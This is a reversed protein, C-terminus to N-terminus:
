PEKRLRFFKSGGDVPVTLFQLGNSIVLTNTVAAWNAAPLTRTFELLFNTAAAPWSILAQDQVRTINLLPPIERFVQISVSASNTLGGSDTATVTIVHNGESLISADLLVLAGNGLVGDRSSTWQVRNAALEGDELDQVNAELVLQQHGILREEVGPRDITVNPAHNLVSFVADSEDVSSRFGDSALVRIRGQTSGRLAERSVELTQETWDVALTIWTMGADPTYQVLYTLPDGDTDAASWRIVTPGAGLTEGGNPFLVQVTPAHATSNQAGIVTGNHLVVVQQIAPDFLTPILFSGAVPFSGFDPPSVELKFSRESVIGGISNLFRLTYDGAEPAPPAAVSNMTAFPFFTVQGTAFDVEGRVLLYNSPGSAVFVSPAAAGGGFRRSIADRFNNYSYKSIWKPSNVVLDAAQSCYSMLDFTNSPNQLFMSHHDFGYIISDEGQDLPGLMPSLGLTPHVYMPFDPARIDEPRNAEVSVETCRGTKFYREEPVGMNIVTRHGIPFASHVAHEFGLLHGLEHAHLNRKFDFAIDSYSGSAVDGPIGLAEGNLPRGVVVGYYLQRWASPNGGGTLGSAGDWLRMWKLLLNLRDEDPAGPLSWVLEGPANTLQAIPYIAKLREELETIQAETPQHDARDINSHWRVRVFKVPLVPMPRFTVQLPCKTNGETGGGQRCFITGNTWELSLTVQGTLWNDPLRFNVSQAWDARFEAANTWFILPPPDLPAQPSNTFELNNRFARLRIHAVSVPGLNTIYVGAAPPVIRTRPLQLHARLYTPKGQILEISQQWDQIAQVVELARVEVATDLIAALANSSSSTCAGCFNTGGFLVLGLLEVPEAEMDSLIPVTFTKMTEGPGFTLSGVVPTYDSDVTATSNAISTRYNITATGNTGIYRIVTVVLPNTSNEATYYLRGPGFGNPPLGQGQSEGLMGALLSLCTPLSKIFASNRSFVASRSTRLRLKTHMRGMDDEEPAQTGFRSDIAVRKGRM